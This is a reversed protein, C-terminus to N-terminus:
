STARKVRVDILRVPETAYDKLQILDLSRDVAINSGIAVKGEGEGNAGIRLEIVTFLEEGGLVRMSEQWVVMPRDTILIIRRTGDPQPDQWAFIVDDAFTIPTRIAGIPDAQRLVKLLGEPGRELLLRAFRDKERETSWRVLHIDVASTVFLENSGRNTAWATFDEPACGTQASTTTATLLVAAVVGAGAM